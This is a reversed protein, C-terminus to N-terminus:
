APPPGADWADVARRVAASAARVTPRDRDARHRVLVLDRRVDETLTLVRTSPSRALRAMLPTVPTVGHGAAALALSAPTDTIAHAVRPEFGAARCANRIAQGFYTGAPTLIWEWESTHALDVVPPATLEPGVALAFRESALQVFEVGPDRPIPATPYDFGFAVDVEGRRVAIAFDDLEIEHTRVEIGPHEQSLGTVVVPALISAATTGYVGIDIRGTVSTRTARTASLANEEARLLSEAHQALVRGADTLRVGRGVKAVLPVGVTTELRAVQQSVAGPTYGLEDAAATMTGLRALWVLARLASSGLEDM